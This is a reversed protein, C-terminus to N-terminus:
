GKGAPHGLIRATKDHAKKILSDLAPFRSRLNTLLRRAWHYERALIILGVLLFLIGQLFPLFLGLIGLGVFIWGAIIAAVRKFRPAFRPGTM